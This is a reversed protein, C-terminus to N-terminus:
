RSRRRHCSGKVEDGLLDPAVRCAHSLAPSRNLADAKAKIGHINDCPLRSM